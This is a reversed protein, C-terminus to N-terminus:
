NKSKEDVKNKLYIYYSIANSAAIIWINIWELWSFAALQFTLGFLISTFVIIGDGLDYTGKEKLQSIISNLSNLFLPMTQFLFYPLLLPYIFMIMIASFIPQFIGKLFKFVPKLDDMIVQAYLDKKNIKTNDQNM